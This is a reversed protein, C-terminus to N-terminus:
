GKGGILMLANQFWFFVRTAYSISGWYKKEITYSNNAFNLDLINKYDSDLEAAIIDSDCKITFYKVKDIGDWDYVITDNETYINLKIPIVGDQIREILVDYLNNERKKISRIAYDFLKDTEFIEDYIISDGKTLDSLMKDKFDISKAIKYMFDHSYSILNHNFKDKGVINEFMLLALQPKVSNSINYSETYPQKYSPTAINSFTLNNYYEDLFRGGEPIAHDSVTYIIPIGAYSMFHLGYVPYYDGITFYSYYDGYNKSVLKEAVYSSIGKMLWSEELSNSVILNGFYQEAFLVALTYELKQTRTPSVLDTNLAILYPYSKNKITSRPLDVLTLRKNPYVGYQSLQNLYNTAADFYRDIYNDKNSDIFLIIEIENTNISITRKFELLDNFAFWNFRTINQVKTKFVNSNSKKLITCNGSAAIQYDKPLEIEVDYNSYDLFKDIFKHNSYHKFKGDIFPPISFYWNEFNYINSEFMDEKVKLLFRIDIENLNTTKFEKSLLFYITSSDVFNPGNDELYRYNLEIGNIKLDKIEYSYFPNGDFENNSISPINLFLTDIISNSNNLWIINETINFLLKNEDYVASLKYTTNNEKSTTNQINLKTTDANITNISYNNIKEAIISVITFVLFLIITYTKKM